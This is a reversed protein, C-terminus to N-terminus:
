SVYDYSRCVATANGSDDFILDVIGILKSGDKYEVTFTITDNFTSYPTNINEDFAKEMEATHDWYFIGEQFDFDAGDVTIENGHKPANFVPRNVNYVMQGYPSTNKVSVSKVTETDDVSLKFDNFACQVLVINDTGCVEARGICFNKEQCYREFVTKTDKIVTSREEDSLGCVNRVSLYVEYPYEENTELLRTETAVAIDERDSAGAVMIFAEVTEKQPAIKEAINQPIDLETAPMSGFGVAVIIAFVLCASIIGATIRKYNTAPVNVATIKSKLRNGLYADPNINDISKRLDDKKM